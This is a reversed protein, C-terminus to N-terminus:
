FDERLDNINVTYYGTFSRTKKMFYQACVTNMWLALWKGIKIADNNM